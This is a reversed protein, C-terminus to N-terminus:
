DKKETEGNTDASLGAIYDKFFDQFLHVPKAVFQNKRWVFFGSDKM